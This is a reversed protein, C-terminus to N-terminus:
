ARMGSRTTQAAIEGEIIEPPNPLADGFGEDRIFDRAAQTSQAAAEPTECISITTVRGADTRLYYYAELGPIERVLPIFRDRAAEALEDMRSEDGGDYRRIVGYM